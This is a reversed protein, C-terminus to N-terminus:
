KRSPPYFERFLALYDELKEVDPNHIEFTTGNCKEYHVGGIEYDKRFKCSDGRCHKCTGYDGTFAIRIHEPASDIYAAHKTVQNFFFRLVISDEKIYIRAAVNKSKVNAKRFILMYRGWCFGSGITGGYTYGMQELKETFEIIFLRDKEAIFGFQEEGMQREIM